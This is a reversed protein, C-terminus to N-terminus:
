NLIGGHCGPEVLPCQTKAAFMLSWLALRHYGSSNQCLSLAKGCQAAAYGRRVPIVARMNSNLSLPFTTPGLVLGTSYSSNNHIIWTKKGRAAGTRASGLTQGLASDSSGPCVCPDARVAV